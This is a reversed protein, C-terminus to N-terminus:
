FWQSVDTSEYSLDAGYDIYEGDNDPYEVFDRATTMLYEGNSM